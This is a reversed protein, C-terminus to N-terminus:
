GLQALSLAIGALCALWLICAARRELRDTRELAQWVHRRLVVAPTAVPPKKLPAPSIKARACPATRPAAIMPLITAAMGSAGDGSVRSMKM